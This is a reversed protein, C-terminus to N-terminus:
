CGAARSCAWAPKSVKIGTALIEQETSQDVFPPAERHIPAYHKADAGRWGNTASCTHEPPTRVSSLAAEHRVAVLLTRAVLPASM